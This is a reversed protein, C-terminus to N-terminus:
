CLIFNNGGVWNRRKRLCIVRCKSEKKNKPILKNVVNEYAIVLEDCTKVLDSNIFGLKKGNFKENTKLTQLHIKM